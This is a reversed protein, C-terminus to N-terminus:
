TAMYRLQDLRSTLQQKYGTALFVLGGHNPGDVNYSKCSIYNFVGEMSWDTVHYKDGALSMMDTLPM